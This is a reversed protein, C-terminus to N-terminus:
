IQECNLAGKLWVLMHCHLTGRGQAKICGYYGSVSGLIGENDPHCPDHGLLNKVFSKMYLNFFKSAVFPNKVVLISQELYSPVQDPLLHDVDIESGALFKVVPNFIDAPNITLYFSPLGKNIIM